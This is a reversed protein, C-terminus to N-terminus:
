GIVDKHHSLYFTQIIKVTLKNLSPRPLFINYERGKCPVEYWTDDKDDQECKGALVARM